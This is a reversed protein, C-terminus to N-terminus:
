SREPAAACRVRPFPAEGMAKSAATAAAAVRVVTDRPLDVSLFRLTDDVGDWTAIILCRRTFVVRPWDRQEVLWGLGDPGTWGVSLSPLPGPKVQRRACDALYADVDWPAPATDAACTCNGDLDCPCTPRGCWGGHGSAWRAWDPPEPLTLALAIAVQWARMDDIVSMQIGLIPLLISRIM